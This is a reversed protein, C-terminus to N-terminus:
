PQPSLAPLPLQVQQTDSGDASIVDLTAQDGSCAVKDIAGGNQLRLAATDVPSAAVKLGDGMEVRVLFYSKTGPDPAAPSGAPATSFSVMFAATLSNATWGVTGELAPNQGDPVGGSKLLNVQNPASYIWGMSAPKDEWRILGLSQTVPVGETSGGGFSGILARNDSSFYYKSIGGYQRSDNPTDMNLQIFGYVPKSMSNKPSNRTILNLLNDSLFYEQISYVKLPFQTGSAHLKDQINVNILPDMGPVLSDDVGPTTESLTVKYQLNELYGPAAPSHGPFILAILLLKWGNM